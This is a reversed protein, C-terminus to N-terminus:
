VFYTYSDFCTHVAVFRNLTINYAIYSFALTCLTISVWHWCKVIVFSLSNSFNNYFNSSNKSPVSPVQFFYGTSRSNFSFASGIQDRGYWTVFTCSSINLSSTSRKTTSPTRSTAFSEYHPVLNNACGLGLDFRNRRRLLKLFRFLFNFLFGYGIGFVM